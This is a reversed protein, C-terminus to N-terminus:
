WMLCNKVAGRAGATNTGSACDRACNVELTNHSGFGPEGSGGERVEGSLSRLFAVLAEKESESLRLPQVQRDLFPNPHGGGDYFDVVEELTALSGDHMYPATRAIERLTPTKFAGLDTDVNTVAYRGPDLPAERQRTIAGDPRGDLPARTGDTALVVGAPDDIAGPRWAVGTNHFDEDTFNPGVHCATCNGKSRFIRMGEQQLASLADTDGGFRFRDIPANGSVISRVYSALAAALTYRDPGSGFGRRFESVYGRDVRLREVAEDVRTALEDEGEIPVLVQEELTAARGDLFFSTGYGRNLLTPSNRQGRRGYVGEATRKGDTFAREPDHCGACSLEGDDSLVPDFFLRRGLDVKAATMPNGEPIPMYLDLGLPVERIPGAAARQAGARAQRSAFAEQKAMSSPAVAVADSNTIAVAVVVVVLPRIGYSM